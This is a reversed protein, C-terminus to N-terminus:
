IVRKKLLYKMEEPRDAFSCHKIHMCHMSIMEKTDLELGFMTQYM